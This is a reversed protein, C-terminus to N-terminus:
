CVLFGFIVEDREFLRYEDDTPGFVPNDDEELGGLEVEELAHQGFFEYQSADFLAGSIYAFSFNIPLQVILMFM